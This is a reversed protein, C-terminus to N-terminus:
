ILLPPRCLPLLTLMYAITLVVILTVIPEPIEGVRLPFIFPVRQKYQQYEKGFERLLCREELGALLLYGFVEILWMLVVEFCSLPSYLISMITLGLTMVIIGLYQPHRVISYLGSTLLGKRKAKLMQIFAALFIILGVLAVVRGLMLGPGFLLYYLGSGVYEPFRFFLMFLYFALPFVMLGHWPGAAPVYQFSFLFASSLAEAIQRLKRKLRCFM